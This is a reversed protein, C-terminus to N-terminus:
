CRGGHGYGVYNCGFPNGYLFNNVAIEAEYRDIATMPRITVTDEVEREAGADVSSLDLKTMDGFAFMWGRWQRRGGVIPETGEPNTLDSPKGAVILMKDEVLGMITGGKLSVTEREETRYRKNRQWLSAPTVPVAAYDGWGCGGPHGEIDVQTQMVLDELASVLVARVSQEEGLDTKDAYRYIDLLEPLTYGTIEFSGM